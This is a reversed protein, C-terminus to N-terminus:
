MLYDSSPPFAPIKLVSGSTVVKSLPMFIVIDTNEYLVANYKVGNFVWCGDVWEFKMENGVFMWTNNRLIVASPNLIISEISIRLHKRQYADILLSPIILQFKVKKGVNGANDVNRFLNLFWMQSQHKAHTNTHQAYTM